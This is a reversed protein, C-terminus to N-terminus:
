HSAKAAWKNERVADRIIYKEYKLEAPPAAAAPPNAALNTSSYKPTLFAELCYIPKYIRAFNLPCHYVDPPVVV